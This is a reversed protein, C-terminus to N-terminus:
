IFGFGIVKLKGQDMGTVLRFLLDQRITENKSNKREFSVIWVRNSVVPTELSVLFRFSHIKGFQRVLKERSVRFDEPSCFDRTDDEALEAAFAPYDNNRIAELLANGTRVSLGVKQGICNKEPDEMLRCSNMVPLLLIPIM